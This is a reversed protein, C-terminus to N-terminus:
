DGGKQKYDPCDYAVADQSWKPKLWDRVRCRGQWITVRYFNVCHRCEYTRHTKNQDPM